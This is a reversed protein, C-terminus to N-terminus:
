VSQLHEPSKATDDVQGATREAQQQTEAYGTGGHLTEGPAKIPEGAFSKARGAGLEPALYAPAMTDSAPADVSNFLGAVTGSGADTVLTMSKNQPLFSFAFVGTGTFLAVLLVYRAMKWLRRNM